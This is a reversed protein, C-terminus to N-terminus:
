LIWSLSSGQNRVRRWGGEEYGVLTSHGGFCGDSRYGAGGQRAEGGKGPTPGDGKGAVICGGATTLFINDINVLCSGETEFGLTFGYTFLVFHWWDRNDVQSLKGRQSFMYEQACPIVNVYSGSVSLCLM